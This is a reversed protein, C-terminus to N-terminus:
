RAATQLLRVGIVTLWACVGGFFFRQTMGGSTLQWGYNTLVFGALVWLASGIWLWDISVRPGMRLVGMALGAFASVVLLRYVYYAALNHLEGTRSLVTNTSPDTPYWGALGVAAGYAVFVLGLALGQWGSAILATGLALGGLAMAAFAAYMLWGSDTLVYESLYRRTPDMGREALHLYAFALAWSLNAGVALLAAGFVFSQRDM